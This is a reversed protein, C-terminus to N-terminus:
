PRRVLSRNIFGAIGVVDSRLEDDGFIKSVFIACCLRAVPPAHPRAPQEADLENFLLKVDFLEGNGFLLEIVNLPVVANAWGALGISM